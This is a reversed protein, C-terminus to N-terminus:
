KSIWDEAAIPTLDLNLNAFEKNFIAMARELHDNNTLIGIKLRNTNKSIFNTRSFIAYCFRANEITTASMEELYIADSPIGHDVMVHRFVSAESPGIQRAQSFNKLDFDVQPILEGALTYRLGINYGGSVVFNLKTNKKYIEAAAIPRSARKPSPEFSGDAKQYIVGGLVVVCDLNEINTTM